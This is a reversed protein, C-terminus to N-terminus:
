GATRHPCIGRKTYGGNVEAGVAYWFPETDRFHGGLTHCELGPHESRAAALAAAALGCRQYDPHTYPEEVRGLGCRHCIEPSRVDDIPVATDRTRHGPEKQHEGVYREM